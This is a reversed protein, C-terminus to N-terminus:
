KEAKKRYVLSQLAFLSRVYWPLNKYAKTFERAAFTARAMAAEFEETRATFLVEVTQAM